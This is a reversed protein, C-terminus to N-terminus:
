FALNICIEAIVNYRFGASRLTVSFSFTLSQNRVHQDEKGKLTVESFDHQQFQCNRRGSHLSSSCECLKESTECVWLLSTESQRLSGSNLLVISLASNLPRFCPLSQFACRSNDIM